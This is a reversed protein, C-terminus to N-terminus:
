EAERFVSCSFSALCTENGLETIMCSIPFTSVERVKIDKDCLQLLMSLFFLRLAVSPWHNMLPM